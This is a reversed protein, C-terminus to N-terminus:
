WHDSCWAHKPHVVVCIDNLILLLGAQHEARYQCRLHSDIVIWYEAYSSLVRKITTDHKM